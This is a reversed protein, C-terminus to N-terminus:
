AEPIVTPVTTAVTDVFAHPQEDSVSPFLREVGEAM